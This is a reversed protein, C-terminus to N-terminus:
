DVVLVAASQIAEGVVAVFFNHGPRHFGKAQAGAIAPNKILRLVARQPSTQKVAPFFPPNQASVSVFHLGKSDVLIRNEDNQDILMLLRKEILQALIQLIRPHNLFCGGALRQFPGSCVLVLEIVDQGGAPVLFRQHFIIESGPPFLHQRRRRPKTLELNIPTVQDHLPSQNGLRFPVLIPLDNQHVRRVASGSPQRQSFGLLDVTIPIVGKVDGPPRSSDPGRRQGAPRRTQQPLLRRVPQVQGVTAQKKDVTSVASM